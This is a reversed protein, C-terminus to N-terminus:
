ASENGRVSEPSGPLPEGILVVGAPTISALNEGDDGPHAEIYGHRVLWTVAPMFGDAIKDEPFGLFGGVLHQPIRLRSPEQGRKEYLSRLLAACWADFLKGCQADETM